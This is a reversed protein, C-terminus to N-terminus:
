TKEGAGAVKDHVWEIALSVVKTTSAAYLIGVIAALIKRHNVDAAYANWRPAVQTYFWPVITEEAWREILSVNEFFQSIIDDGWFAKLGDYTQDHDPGPDPIYCYQTPHANLKMDQTCILASQNWYWDHVFYIYCSALAITLFLAVGVFQGSTKEAM